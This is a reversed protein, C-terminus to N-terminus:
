CCSADSLDARSAVSSNESDSRQFVPFFVASSPLTVFLRAMNVAIGSTSKLMSHTTGRENKKTSKNKDYM